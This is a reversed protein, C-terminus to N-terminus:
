ELSVETSAQSAELPASNELDNKRIRLDYYLVINFLPALLFKLLTSIVTVIGIDFGFSKMMNIVTSPDKDSIAGAAALNMYQSIYDWMFIFSVPTIILSVAFQIVLSILLIIGFTRWWYGEILFSSKSFSKLVGYNKHVILIFAFYWRYILYIIFLIAAFIYLGGIFKLIIFDGAKAVAFIIVGALIIGVVILSILLAQGICRLYTISFIEKFAEKLGAKEGDMASCGIKTIGINVALSGLVFLFVTFFFIGMGSFIEILRSPSLMANPNDKVANISNALTNFFTHLGLAFIVGLPLIIILALILNRLFTEKILNFSASFIDGLLMPKTKDFIKRADTNQATSKDMANQFIKDAKNSAAFDNSQGKEKQWLYRHMTNCFYHGDSVIETGAPIDQNCYECKM